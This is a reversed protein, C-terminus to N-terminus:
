KGAPPIRGIGFYQALLNFAKELFSLDLRYVLDNCQYQRM